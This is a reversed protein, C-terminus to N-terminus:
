QTGELVSRSYERGDANTAGVGTGSIFQYEPEKWKIAQMQKLSGGPGKQAGGDKPLKEALSQLPYNIRPLRRQGDVLSVEM